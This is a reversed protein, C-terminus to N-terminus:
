LLDNLARTIGGKGIVNEAFFSLIYPLVNITIAVIITIAMIKGDNEWIIM